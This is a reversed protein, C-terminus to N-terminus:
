LYDEGLNVQNVSDLDFFPRDAAVTNVYDNSYALM